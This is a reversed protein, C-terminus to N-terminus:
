QGDSDRQQRASCARLLSSAETGSEGGVPHVEFSDFFSPTKVGEIESTLFKQAVKDGTNEISHLEDVPAQWFKTCSYFLSKIAHARTRSKQPTGAIAVKACLGSQDAPPQSCRALAVDLAPKPSAQLFALTRQSAWFDRAAM